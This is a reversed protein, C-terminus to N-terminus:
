FDYGIAIGSHSTDVRENKTSNFVSILCKQYKQMKEGDFCEQCGAITENLCEFVSTLNGSHYSGGSMCSVFNGVFPVNETNNLNLCNSIEKGCSKWCNDISPFVGWISMLLVFIIKTYM